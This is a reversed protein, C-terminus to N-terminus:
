LHCLHSVFSLSDPTEHVKCSNRRQVSEPIALNRQGADTVTHGKYEGKLQRRLDEKLNHEQTNRLDFQRKFHSDREERQRPKLHFLFGPHCLTAEASPPLWPTERERERGFDGLLSLFWLLFFLRLEAARQGKYDRQSISFPKARKRLESISWSEEELREEKEREREKQGVHRGEWLVFRESRQVTSIKPCGWYKKAKSPM